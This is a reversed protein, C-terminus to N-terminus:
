FCNVSSNEEREEGGQPELGEKNYVKGYVLFWGVPHNRQKHCLMYM